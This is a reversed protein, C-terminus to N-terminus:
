MSQALRNDDECVRGGTYGKREFFELVRPVSYKSWM